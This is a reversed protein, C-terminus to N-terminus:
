TEVMRTTLLDIVVAEDERLIRTTGDPMILSGDTQVMIGDATFMDKEMFLTEGNIMILMRGGRMMALDRKWDM